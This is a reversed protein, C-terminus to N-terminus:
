QETKSSLSRKEKFSKLVMSETFGERAEVPSTGHPLVSGEELNM